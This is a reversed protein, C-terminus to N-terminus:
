LKLNFITLIIPHRSFLIYADSSVSRAWKSYGIQNGEMVYMGMYMSDLITLLLYIDCAHLAWLFASIMYIAHMHYQLVTNHHMNMVELNKNLRM